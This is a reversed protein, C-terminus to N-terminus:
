VHYMVGKCYIQYLDHSTLQNNFFKHLREDKRAELAEFPNPDRPGFPIDRVWLEFKLWKPLEWYRNDDYKSLEGVISDNSIPAVTKPKFENVICTPTEKRVRKVNSMRVVEVRSISCDLGVTTLIMWKTATDM